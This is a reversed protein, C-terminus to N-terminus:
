KLTVINGMDKLLIVSQLLYAHISWHFKSELFLEKTRVCAYSLWFQFSLYSTLESTNYGLVPSALIVILNLENSNNQFYSKEHPRKALKWVQNTKLLRKVMCIISLVIKNCAGYLTLDSLPGYDETRKCVSIGITPDMIIEKEPRNSIQEM